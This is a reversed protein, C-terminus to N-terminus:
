RQRRRRADWAGRAALGTFVPDSTGRGSVRLGWVTGIGLVHGMEHLIVTELQGDVELDAVDATDFRM